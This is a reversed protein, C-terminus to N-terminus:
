NDLLRGVAKEVAKGESSAALWKRLERRVITVSVDDGRDRRIKVLEAAAGRAAAEGAKAIDRHLAKKADFQPIPLKWLHKQLDRAGFQGKPMFPKVAEYLVDSNIIALLYYAEQHDRCRVWYLKSDVIARDDSLLAATPQGASAYVIRIPRSGPNAQWNRQSVLHGFFNLQNSLALKNAPSKHADWIESVTQWRSRM